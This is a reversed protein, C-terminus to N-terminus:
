RDSINDDGADTRMRSSAMAAIAGTVTPNSHPKAAALPAATAKVKIAAASERNAATGVPNAAEKTSRTVRRM